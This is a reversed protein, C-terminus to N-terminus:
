DRLVTQTTEDHCGPCCYVLEDLLPATMAPMITKIRMPADCRCCIVPMLFHHTKQRESVLSM